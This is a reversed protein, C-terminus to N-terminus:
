KDSGVVLPIQQHGARTIKSRIYSPTCIQSLFARYIMSWSCLNGAVSAPEGVQLDHAAPLGQLAAAAAPALGQLQRAGELHANFPVLM